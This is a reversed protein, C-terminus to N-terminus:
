EVGGREAPPPHGVPEDLRFVRSLAKRKERGHGRFVRKPGHMKILCGHTDDEALGAEADNEHGIQLLEVGGLLIADGALLRPSFLPLGLRRLLLPESVFLIIQLLPKSIFLLLDLDMRGVLSGTSSTWAVLDSLLHQRPEGTGEM